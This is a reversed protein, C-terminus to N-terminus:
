GRSAEAEREAEERLRAEEAILELYRDRGDEDVRPADGAFIAVIQGQIAAVRDARDQSLVFGDRQSM